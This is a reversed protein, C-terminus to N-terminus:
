PDKWIFMSTPISHPPSSTPLGQSTAAPSSSSCDPQSVSASALRSQFLLNGGAGDVDDWVSSAPGWTSFWAEEAESWMLESGSTAAAAAPQPEEAATNRNDRPSSDMNTFVEPVMTDSFMGGSSEDDADLPVSRRHFGEPTPPASSSSCSAGDKSAGEGGDNSGKGLFLHPFNLRANEGRLKYAERDYALAADEATDFTGLWLRTRNRPLRIEAVWKGWHRQRVGRYLKTPAAANPFMPPRLLTYLSNPSRGRGEQAALRNMMMMHGRPSLNLAESWYRLLQESYRQQQLQQQDRPLLSPPTTSTLMQTSQNQAFSIMKQQQQQQNSHFLHLIPTEKTPSSTECAFPFIPPRSVFTPSPASPSTPAQISSCSNSSPSIPNSSYREPSRIKKRPRFAVAAHSEEFVPVPPRPREDLRGAVPVALTELQLGKGKQRRSNGGGVGRQSTGGGKKTGEM